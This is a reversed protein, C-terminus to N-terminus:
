FPLGPRGKRADRTADTMKRAFEMMPEALVEGAGPIDRIRRRAESLRKSAAKIRDDYKEKLAQEEEKTLPDSKELESGKRVLEVMRDGQRELRPVAAKASDIDKISDMTDAMAELESVLSGALSDHSTRFVTLVLVLVLALAAVGGGVALGIMLGRSGSSKRKRPRKKRSPRASPGSARRPASRRPPPAASTRRSRRPPADFDDEYDEFEDGEPVDFKEGCEKCPLRKGAYKENLSYSKGCSDCVAQISMDELKM